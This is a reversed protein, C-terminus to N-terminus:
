TIDAQHLQTLSSCFHFLRHEPGLSAAMENQPTIEGAELKEGLFLLINLENTNILAHFTIM